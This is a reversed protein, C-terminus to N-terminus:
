SRIIEFHEDIVDLPTLSNGDVRITKYELKGGEVKLFPIDVAPSISKIKADFLMDEYSMLIVIGYPSYGEDIIEINDLDSGTGPALRCIFDGAKMDIWRPNM